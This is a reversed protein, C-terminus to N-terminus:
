VPMLIDTGTRTDIRDDNKGEALTEVAQRLHYDDLRLYRQTTRFDRHRALAM